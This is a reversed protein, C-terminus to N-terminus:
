GFLDIEIEQSADQEPEEAECEEEDNGCTLKHVPWDALQCAEDCYRAVLCKQCKGFGRMKGHLSGCYQCSKLEILPPPEDVCRKSLEEVCDRITAKLEDITLTEVSGRM